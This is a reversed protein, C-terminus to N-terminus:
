NTMKLSFEDIATIFGGDILEIIVKIQNDTLGGNSSAIFEFAEYAQIIEILEHQKNINDGMKEFEEQCQEIAKKIGTIKM